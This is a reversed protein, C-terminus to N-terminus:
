PPRAYTLSTSEMSNVINKWNLWLVGVGVAHEDVGLKHYRELM